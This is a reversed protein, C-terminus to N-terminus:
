VSRNEFSRSGSPFLDFSSPMDCIGTASAGGNLIKREDDNGASRVSVFADHVPLLSRPRGASSSLPAEFRYFPV